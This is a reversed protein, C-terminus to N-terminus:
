PDVPPSDHCFLARSAVRCLRSIISTHTPCQVFFETIDFRERSGHMILEDRESARMALERNLLEALVGGEAPNTATAIQEVRIEHELTLQPAVGRGAVAVFYSGRDGDRRLRLCHEVPQFEDDTM